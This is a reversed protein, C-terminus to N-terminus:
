KKIPISLLPINLGSAMMRTKSKHLISEWFGYRKPMMVLLDSNSKKVEAEIADIVSNSKVNKYLLTVDELEKDLNANIETQLEEVKKDVYFVTVIANLSLSVQRLKALTKLPVGELLDCAFLINKIGKFKACLPIALVPFEKMSILTTTPNGLLNQELSKPSMGIVIFRAEYLKMLSDVEEELNTYSSKYAVEINFEKSIKLANEKLKNKNIQFFHDVSSAPLRSNAVHVPLRFTNFLVLKTNFEQALAAAYLVANESLKSFNTAVIISM